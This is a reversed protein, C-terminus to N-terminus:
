ITEQMKEITDKMFQHYRNRTEEVDQVNYLDLEEEDKKNM